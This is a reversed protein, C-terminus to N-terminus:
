LEVFVFKSSSVSFLPNEIINARIIYAFNLSNLSVKKTGSKGQYERIDSGSGSHDGAREQDKYYEM